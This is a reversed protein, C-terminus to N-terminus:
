SVRLAYRPQPQFDAATEPTWQATKILHAQFARSLVWESPHVLDTDTALAANIARETPVTLGLARYAEAVAQYNSQWLEYVYSIYAVALNEGTLPTSYRHDMM